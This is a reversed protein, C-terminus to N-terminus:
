RRSFLFCVGLVIIGIPWLGALNFGLMSAGVFIFPMPLFLLPILVYRSFRGNAQYNRYATMLIWYVPVLAMLIWPSHGLISVGSMGLLFIVGVMIFLGGMQRQATGRYNSRGTPNFM